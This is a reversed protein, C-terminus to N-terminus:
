GRGEVPQDTQFKAGVVRARLHQPPLRGRRRRSPLHRDGHLDGTTPDLTALNERHDDAETVVFLTGTNPHFSMADVNVCCEVFVDNAPGSELTELNRWFLNGESYIWWLRDDPAFDFTM